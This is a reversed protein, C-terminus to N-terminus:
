DKENATHNTHWQIPFFIGIFSFIRGRSIQSSLCSFFIHQHKSTSGKPKPHSSLPLHDQSPLLLPTLGSSLWSHILDPLHKPTPFALNSTYPFTVTHPTRFVAASNPSCRLELNCYTTLYTALLKNGSIILTCYQFEHSLKRKKGGAKFFFFSYIWEHM